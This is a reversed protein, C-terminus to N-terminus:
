DSRQKNSNALDALSISTQQEQRLDGIDPAISRLDRVAGVLCEGVARDRVSNETIRVSEVRLVEKDVVLTYSLSIQQKSEASNVDGGYCSAAADALLFRLRYIRYKLSEAEQMKKAEVPDVEKWPIRREGTPSATTVERPEAPLTPLTPLRGDRLSTKGNVASTPKVGVQSTRNSARSQTLWWAVVVCILV